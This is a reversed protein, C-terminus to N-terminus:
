MEMEMEPQQQPVKAPEPQQNQLRQQKFFAEAADVEDRTPLNPLAEALGARWESARDFEKDAWAKAEPRIADRTQDLDARAQERRQRAAEALSVAANLQNREALSFIRRFWGLNDYHEQAAQRQEQAAQFEQQAEALAAVETATHKVMYEGEMCGKELPMSLVFEAIDRDNYDELIQGDEVYTQFKLFPFTSLGSFRFYERRAEYKERAAALLEAQDAM